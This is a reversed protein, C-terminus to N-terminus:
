PKSNFIEHGISSHRGDSITHQKEKSSKNGGDEIMFIEQGTASINTNLPHKNEGENGISLMPSVGNGDTVVQRGRGGRGNILSNQTGLKKQNDGNINLESIQLDDDVDRGRVSEYQDNVLSPHGYDTRRVNNSNSTRGHEYEAPGGGDGHRQNSIPRGPQNVNSKHKSSLCGM